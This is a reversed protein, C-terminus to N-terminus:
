AHPEETHGPGGAKSATAERPARSLEARSRLFHLTGGVVLGAAIFALVRGARGTPKEIASDSDPTPTALLAVADTIANEEPVTTPTPVSGGHLSDGAPILPEPVAAEPAADFYVRGDSHFTFHYTIDAGGVTIGLGRLGGEAVALASVDDLPRAFRLQYLGRGVFWRCRGGADTVCTPSVTTEEPLRELVVTEGVVASGDAQRLRITVATDGATTQALAGDPLVLSLILWGLTFVSGASFALSALTLGVEKKGRQARQASQPSIKGSWSGDFIRTKM